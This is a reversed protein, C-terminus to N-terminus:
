SCDFQKRQEGYYTSTYVIFLVPFFAVIYVNMGHSQFATKNRTFM